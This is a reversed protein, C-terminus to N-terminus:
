RELLVKLAETTFHVPLSHVLTQVDATLVIHWGKIDTDPESRDGELIVATVEDDSGKTWM